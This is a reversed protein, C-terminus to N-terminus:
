ASDNVRGAVAEATGGPWGAKKGIVEDIVLGVAEAVEHIADSHTGVNRFPAPEGGRVPVVRQKGICLGCLHERRWMFPQAMAVIVPFDEHRIRNITSRIDHDREDAFYDENCLLVALDATSLWKAAWERVDTGPNDERGRHWFDVAGYQTIWNLQKILKKTHSSTTKTDGIYIVLANPKVDGSRLQTARPTHLTAAANALAWRAYMLAKEYHNTLEANHLDARVRVILEDLAELQQVSRDDAADVLRWGAEFLEQLRCRYGRWLDEVWDTWYPRHLYDNTGESEELGALIKVIPEIRGILGDFVFALSNAVRGDIDSCLKSINEPTLIREAISAHPIEWEGTM